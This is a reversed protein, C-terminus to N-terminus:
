ANAPTDVIGLEFITTEGSVTLPSNNFSLDVSIEWETSIDQADGGSSSNDARSSYGHVAFSMGTIPDIIQGYGGNYSEYDGWGSQNKQPIWDVVGITGEPIFYGMGKPFNADTLGIAEWIDAGLGGQYATNTSNGAGQNLYHQAELYLTPDVIVDAAGKYYNQRLMSKGYQIFRAINATAVEFADSTTSDFVGNKTAVNVTTKNTALYALAAADASEHINKFANDLENALIMADSFINNEARKLSTKFKDGYTAWSLSVETSDGVAGTHNHTRSSTNSRKARNAFYAKEARSASTRLEGVNPMALSTNKAFAGLVGPSKLRKEPSAYREALILKAEALVSAAYNAM